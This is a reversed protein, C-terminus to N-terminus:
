AAEQLAVPGWRNEWEDRLVRWDSAHRGPGYFHAKVGEHRFGIAKLMAKARTNADGTRASIRHINLQGFAFQGLERFIQSDFLHSSVGAVSVEITSFQPKYESFVVGGILGGDQRLVGVGAYLDRWVPQEVPALRGVFDIVTQDHGWLLRRRRTM